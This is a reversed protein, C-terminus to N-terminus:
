PVIPALGLARGIFSAMQDRLVPDDPCFRDNIPPNCGVTIGAAALAQIDAEFVSDDDDVFRDGGAPALDLARVLFGAMQGRNVVESPCYLDSTPPNCGVTIGAAALAEIYGEHVDGDDDTFTGGVGLNDVVITRTAMADPGGPGSGTVTVVHDGESEGVSDWTASWGDAGNTDTGVLVGDVKFSVQEVNSAAAVLTVTDSVTAGAAPSQISVSPDPNAVTVSHSDTGTAGNGDTAVAALTKSGEGTDLSDWSISWGDTGNTDTGIVTGAVEFRVSVVGVDDSAVAQITNAGAVTDGAGPDAILVSPAGNITGSAGDAVLAFPQPGMPVDYGRVDVTWTGAVPSQIYVNEVNNVRDASGGTASWGGTFNNARYVTGNPDTVVLDLDNVLNDTSNTAAPYDSWVLTLKLPSGGPVSFRYETELGTELEASDFWLRDGDVAEAVDVRGWGEHMNPIPFDNDDAGDNNEDALDVASNILMAKVLAASANHGEVDDFYQRVIAAAGSVLPTAMSTGGNYKYYEDYPIGWGTTQFFGNQPNPSGDYGEQFLDSYTSLIWTGPAVVDPKIRGDITPGRSSFAAMQEENGAMSDTSLPATSFGVNSYTGPDNISGAGLCTAPDLGSADDCPFGGARVNESAGVSIVNKATAPSGISGLDVVGDTNADVGANGAAVVISMDPFDWTFADAANSDFNYAGNDDTGWSDSHVRAGDLYAELFLDYIDLPLGWLQYGSGAGCGTLEIYDSVSQFVLSAGPATGRGITGDGSGVASGAVHTGHGTDPDGSGDPFADYCGPVSLVPWDNIAAIRASPIDRHATAATGGGLGTDAVAVIQGTGDYGAAEAAAAGIIVGGGQDNRTQRPAFGEIGAIGAAGALRLISQRDASVLGFRGDSRVVDVGAERAIAPLDADPDLKVVYFGRFADAGAVSRVEVPRDVASVAAGALAGVRAIASDSARVRFGREGSYDLVVAGAQEIQAVSGVPTPGDFAVFYANSNEAPAATAPVVAALVAMIVAAVTGINKRM